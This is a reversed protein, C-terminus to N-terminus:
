FRLYRGSTLIEIYQEKYLSDSKRIRNKLRKRRNYIAMVKDENLFLAISANSFGLCSYIFLLYDEKKINPFDSMVKELINEYNDNIFIEIQSLKESDSIYNDMFRRMTSYATKMSKMCNNQFIEQCLTDVERYCISVDISTEKKSDLILVRDNGVINEGNDQNKYSYLLWMAISSWALLGCLVVNGIMAKSMGIESISSMSTAIDILDKRNNIAITDDNLRSCLIQKWQMAIKEKWEADDCTLAYGYSEISLRMAESFKGAENYKRADDYTEIMREWDDRASDDRCVSSFVLIMMILFVLRGSM